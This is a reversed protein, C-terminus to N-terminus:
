CYFFSIIITKDCLVIVGAYPPIVMFLWLFFWMFIIIIFFYSLSLINFSYM